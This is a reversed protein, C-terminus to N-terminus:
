PSHLIVVGRFPYVSLLLTSKGPQANQPTIRQVVPQTFLSERPRYYWVIDTKLICSLALQSLGREEEHLQLKRSDTGDVEFHM